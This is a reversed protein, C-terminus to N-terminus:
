ILCSGDAPHPDTEGCYACPVPEEGLVVGTLSNRVRAQHGKKLLRNRIKVGNEPKVTTSWRCWDMELTDLNAEWCELVWDRGPEGGGLKREASAM